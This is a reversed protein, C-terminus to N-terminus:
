QKGGLRVLKYIRYKQEPFKLLMLKMHKYCTSRSAAIRDPYSSVYCINGSTENVLVFRGQNTSIELM